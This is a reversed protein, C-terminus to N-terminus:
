VLNVNAEVHADGKDERTGQGQGWMYGAKARFRARGKESVPGSRAGVGQMSKGECMSQGQGWVHGIDDWVHRSRVGVRSEGKDEFKGNRARMQARGRGWCTSRGQGVACTSQEQGVRAGGKIAFTEHEHWRDGLGTTYKGEYPGKWAVMQARGKEGHTRYRAWQGFFTDQRGLGSIPGPPTYFRMYGASEGLM